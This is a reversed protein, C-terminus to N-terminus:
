PALEPLRRLHGQDILSQFLAPATQAIACDRLLVGIEINWDMAAAALNASTVFLKEADSIVVKAHLIGKPGDSRLSRPDYCVAPCGECPWDENWLRDAFRELMNRDSNARFRSRNINLLVTVRLSPRKDMQGALMKFAEPGDFYTYSSILISKRADRM